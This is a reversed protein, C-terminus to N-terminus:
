FQIKSRTLSCIGKADQEDTCKNCFIDVQRLVMISRGKINEIFICWDKTTTKFGLDKTLIRDKLKM